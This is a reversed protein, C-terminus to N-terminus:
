MSEAVALLRAAVEVLLPSDTPKSGVYSDLLLEFRECVILHAPKCPVATTGTEGAALTQGVYVACGCSLIAREGAGISPFGAQQLFWTGREITAGDSM